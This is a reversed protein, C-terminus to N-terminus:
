RSTWVTIYFWLWVLVRIGDWPGLLMPTWDVFGVKEIQVKM